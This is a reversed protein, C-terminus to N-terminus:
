KNLESLIQNTHDKTKVKEFIKIITGEEDIIFTKRLVGMYTKGYMKKEGWANYMELIEKETDAILNFRLSHKAIFKQHSTISDPSVGIVEFGQNTLEDYNDSLNCSEATCGPTNDKPYFYLIVKKGKFDDLSITNNDQNLGKFIPAKDGEKLASM